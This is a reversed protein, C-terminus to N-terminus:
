ACKVQLGRLASRKSEAAGLAWKEVGYVVDTTHRNPSMTKRARQLRVPVRNTQTIHEFAATQNIKKEPIIYHSGINTEINIYNLVELVKSISILSFSLSFAFFITSTQSCFPTKRLRPVWLRHCGPNTFIRSTISLPPLSPLRWLAKQPPALPQGMTSTMGNLSEILKAPNTASQKM